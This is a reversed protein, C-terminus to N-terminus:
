ARSSTPWPPREGEVAFLNVSESPIADAGMERIIYQRVIKESINLM